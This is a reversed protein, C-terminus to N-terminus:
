PVVPICVIENIGSDWVTLNTTGCARSNGFVCGLPTVNIDASSFENINTPIFALTGAICPNRSQCIAVSAPDGIITDNCIGPSLNNLWANTITCFNILPNVIQFNPSQVGTGTANPNSQVLTQAITIRQEAFSQYPTGNSTTFVSTINSSCQPNRLCRCTVGRQCVGNNDTSGDSQLAYPTLANDCLFQANCVELAPDALLVGNAIQPCIKSGNYINTTCQGPECALGSGNIVSGNAVRTKVVNTSINTRVNYIIYLIFALIILLIVIVIIIRVDPM